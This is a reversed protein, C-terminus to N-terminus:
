RLRRGITMGETKGPLNEVLISFDAYSTRREDYYKWSKTFQDRVYVLVLLLTVFSSLRVVHEDNALLEHINSLLIMFSTCFIEEEEHKLKPTNRICFDHNINISNYLEIGTYNVIEILLIIM